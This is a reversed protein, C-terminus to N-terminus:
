VGASTASGTATPSEPRKLVADGVAVEITFVLKLGYLYHPDIVLRVNRSIKHTENRPYLENVEWGIREGAAEIMAAAVEDARTVKQMADRSISCSLTYSKWKYEDAAPWFPKGWFRAGHCLCEVMAQNLRGDPAVSLIAYELRFPNDDSM